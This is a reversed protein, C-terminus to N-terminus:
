ILQNSTEIETESALEVRSRKRQLRSPSPSSPFHSHLSPPTPSPPSRSPELAPVLSDPNAYVPINLDERRKQSRNSFHLSPSQRPVCWVNEFFCFPSTERFGFIRHARLCFIPNFFLWNEKSFSHVSSYFLSANLRPLSPRAPHKGPRLRPRPRLLVARAATQRTRTQNRRYSDISAERTPEPAGQTSRVRAAARTTLTKSSTFTTHLHQKVIAICFSFRFSKKSHSGM